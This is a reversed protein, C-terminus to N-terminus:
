QRFTFKNVFFSVLSGLMIFGLLVEILVYVKAPINEAVFDAMGLSTFVLGSLYFNDFWGGSPSSTKLYVKPHLCCLWDDIPSPVWEQIEFGMYIVGFFVIVFICCFLWLSIREGWLSTIGWLKYLFPSRRQLAFLNQQFRIDSVLQPSVILTENTFTTERFIIAGRMLKPRYFSSCFRRFKRFVFVPFIIPTILVLILWLFLKGLIYWVNPLIKYSFSLLSSPFSEKSVGIHAKSLDAGFFEAKNLNADVLITDPHSLDSNHFSVCSLNARNFYVGGLFESRNLDGGSIFKAGFFDAIKKFSSKSFDVEKRFEAGRFNSMSYFNAESFDVSGDFTVNSFICSDFCEIFSFVAKGSFFASSFSLMGKFTSCDIIFDGNFNAKHFNTKKSFETASFFVGGKFNVGNFHTNSYFINRSFNADGEFLTKDFIADEHFESEKFNINGHFTANSFDVKSLFEAECFNVDGDFEVYCLNVKIGKPFQFGEFFDRTKPFVFGEFNWTDVGSNKLDEVIKTFADWFENKFKASSPAHFICYREGKRTIKGYKEYICKEGLKGWSKYEYDCM